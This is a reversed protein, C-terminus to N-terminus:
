NQTTRSIIISYHMLTVSIIKESAHYHIIDNITSSMMNGPMHMGFSNSYSGGRAHTLSLTTLKLTSYLQVVYLLLPILLTLTYIIPYKNKQEMRGGHQSM